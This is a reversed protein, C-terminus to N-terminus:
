ERNHSAQCCCKVKLAARAASAEARLAESVAASARHRAVAAELGKNQKQLTSLMAQLVRSLCDKVLLRTEAAAESVTSYQSM